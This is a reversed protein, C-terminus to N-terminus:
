RDRKLVDKAVQMAQADTVSTRGSAQAKLVGLSLAARNRDTLGQRDPTDRKAM